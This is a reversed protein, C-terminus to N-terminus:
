AARDVVSRLVNVQGRAAEIAAKITGPDDASIADTISTIATDLTVLGAAWEGSVSLPADHTEMQGLNFSLEASNSLLRWFGGEDVTVILDNLDKEFDDLDRYSDSKFGAVDVVPEPAPTAPAAAAVTPTPTASPTPAEDVPASSEISPSQAVPEGNGNAATAISAIMGVVVLSGVGILVGKTAKSMAKSAAVPPETARPATHETWKTGDWYQLLAPETPHNHWGAPTPPPTTM